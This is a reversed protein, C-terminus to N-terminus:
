KLLVMAVTPFTHIDYIPNWYLMLFSNHLVEHMGKWSVATNIYRSM